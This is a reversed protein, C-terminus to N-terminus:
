RDWKEVEVVVKRLHTVWTRKAGIQRGKKDYVGEDTQTVCTEDSGELKIRSNPLYHMSKQHKRSIKPVLGPDETQPRRFDSQFQRLTHPSPRRSVHETPPLIHPPPRNSVGVFPPLPHDLGVIEMGPPLPQGLVPSFLDPRFGEVGIMPDSLDQMQSAEGNPNAARARKAAKTKRSILRKTDDESYDDSGSDSGSSSPSSASGSASNSSSSHGNEKDEDSDSLQSKTESGTVDRNKRPLKPHGKKWKLGKKPVRWRVPGWRTIKVPDSSIKPSSPRIPDTPLHVPFPAPHEPLILGGNSTPPIGSLTETSLAIPSHM